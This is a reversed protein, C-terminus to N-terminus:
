LTKVKVVVYISNGAQTIPQCHTEGVKLYTVDGIKAEKGGKSYERSKCL